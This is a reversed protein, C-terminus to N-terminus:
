RWPAPWLLANRDPPMDFADIPIRPNSHNLYWGASSWPWDEPRSVLKAEVPNNHIYELKEGFNRAHRCISDFYRPQWFPGHRTGLNVLSLAAKSKYNRLIDSLAQEGPDLLLHLHTPMVVYGYLYFTRRRKETDLTELLLTRENPSFHAAKPQLNTTVFFIRDTLAIRRLRSM